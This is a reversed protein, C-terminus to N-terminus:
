RGGNLLSAADSLTVRYQKACLHASISFVIVPPLAGEVARSGFAPDTTRTVPDAAVAHNVTLLAFGSMPM